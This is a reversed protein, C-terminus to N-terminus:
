LEFGTPGREKGSPAFASALARVGRQWMAVVLGMCGVTSEKCVRLWRALVVELRKEDQERGAVPSPRPQVM